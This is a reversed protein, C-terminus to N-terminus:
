KKKQRMKFYSLLIFIGLTLIATGALVAYMVGISVPTEVGPFYLNCDVSDRIGVIVEEPFGQAEMERFAGAMAHNRLLSTGYTGPLFSMAKQLGEGFQSIPMYAGCIFGYGASVITGVASMQGQTTLFLNISSSLATGFMSLLFIDLFIFLIDAFTLYWGVVAIYVLCGAVGVFAILLTSLLGSIYYSAALCAPKVPAITLDGWAGTVKDQVQLFNACFAVTVCSVALMSSFLQGGVFGDILQEDVSFSQPLALLFSDHYVKALFTSYLLLLILPTVLSTLLMGKDRFFLKTNRWTLTMTTKM